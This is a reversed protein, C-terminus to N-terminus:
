RRELILLAHMQAVVRWDLLIETLEEVTASTANIKMRSSNCTEVVRKLPAPQNIKAVTSRLEKNTFMKDENGPNGARRPILKYCWRLLPGIDEGSVPNHLSYSYLSYSYMVM